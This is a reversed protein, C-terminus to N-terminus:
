TEELARSWGFIGHFSHVHVPEQVPKWPFFSQSALDLLARMKLAAEWRQAQLSAKCAFGAFSHLLAQRKCLQCRSAHSVRLFCVKLAAEWRQAQLGAMRAFSAFSHLLAQRKIAGVQMLCM